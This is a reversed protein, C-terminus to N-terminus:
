VVSKRDGEADKLKLEAIVKKVLPLSRLIESETDLPNSLQTLGSLEGAKEAMGSLASVPNKKNFLLTGEAEYVPKQLHTVTATLGFVSSVMLFGPLWRRKLILWYRQFDLSDQDEQNPSM